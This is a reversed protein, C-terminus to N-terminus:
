GYYKLIKTPQNSLILMKFKTKSESFSHDVNKLLKLWKIVKM